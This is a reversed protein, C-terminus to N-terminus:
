GVLRIEQNLWKISLRRSCGVGADDDIENGANRENDRINYDSLGKYFNASGFEDNVFM